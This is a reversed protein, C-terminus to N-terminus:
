RFQATSQEHFANIAQQFYQFAARAGSIVAGAEGPVLEDLRTTFRQWMVMRESGYAEWFRTSGEPLTMKSRLMRVIHVGGLTSGELVYLAGLAQHFSPQVSSGTVRPVPAGMQLLDQELFAANRRRSRDPFHTENVWARIGKEMPAFVLYFLQLLAAYDAQNAANKIIPLLAGETAAHETRTSSKLLAACSGTGDRQTM